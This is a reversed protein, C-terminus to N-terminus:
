GASLTVGRVGWTSWSPYDGAATFGIYNPVDDLLLEDAISITRTRTWKGAPGKGITKVVRWNVWLTVEGPGLDFGQYTLNFAGLGAPALYVAEKPHTRDAGPINGLADPLGLLMPLAPSERPNVPIIRLLDWAAPEDTTMFDYLSGGMLGYERVAHVFGEIEAADYNDAVGGIQHIAVTPNGTGARVLTACNAAYDHVAQGGAAVAGSYCM